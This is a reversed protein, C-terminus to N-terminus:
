CAEDAVHSQKVPFGTEGVSGLCPFSQRTFQGVVMCGHAYRDPFFLHKHFFLDTISAMHATCDIDIDCSTHNMEHTSAEMSSYWIHSKFGEVNFNYAFALIVKKLTVICFQHTNVASKNCLISVNKNECKQPQNEFM